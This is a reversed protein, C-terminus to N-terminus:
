VNVKVRWFKTKIQRKMKKEFNQWFRKIKEERERKKERESMNQSKKQKTKNHLPGQLLQNIPPPDCLLIYSKEVLVLWELKDKLSGFALLLLLLLMCLEWQLKSMSMSTCLTTAGGGLLEKCFSFFLSLSVKKGSSGKRWNLPCGEFCFHISPAWYTNGM